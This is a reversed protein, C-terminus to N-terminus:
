LLWTTTSRGSHKLLQEWPKRRSVLPVMAASVRGMAGGQATTLATGAAMFLERPQAPEHTGASFDWAHLHWETAAIGFHLGTTVTGRPFGYPLDWAADVRGAYRRAEIGFRQIRADGDEADLTALAEANRSALDTTPFPPEADGAEARDLWSHYWGVVYVLHGALDTASWRGCVTRQWQEPSWAKTHEEVADVGSAYLDRVVAREMRVPHRM